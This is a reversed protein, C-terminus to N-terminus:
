DHYADEVQAYRMDSIIQGDKLEITRDSQKSLAPDHTVLIIGCNTKQKIDLLLDIINKSTASDLNGTPEDALIWDPKAILSRAIAVRQQQGGSLQSPLSAHKDSLGVLGLLEKARAEKDYSVKQHFLPALINEMATLTPLLHFQQFIFGIHQNRLESLSNAKLKHVEKEDYYVKGKTPKELTGIISLLTSKGSGSSGIISIFDESELRLSINDLVITEAESKGFSKHINELTIKNYM